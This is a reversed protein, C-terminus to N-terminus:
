ARAIKTFVVQVADECAHRARSEDPQVAEFFRPFARQAVWTGTDGFVPHRWGRRRVGEAYGPLARMGDPMKRGDTRVRVGAEKGTFRVQVGTAKALLFRLDPQGRRSRSSTQHGRSPASLWAQKVERAMPNAVARLNGRLEKMLEKGDAQQKLEKAVRKLDGSDVLQIQM